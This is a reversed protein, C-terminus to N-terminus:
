RAVDQPQYRPTSLLCRAQVARRVTREGWECIQRYPRHGAPERQRTRYDEEASREIANSTAGWVSFRAVESGDERRLVIAKPDSRFLTTYPFLTSRPPRRIM